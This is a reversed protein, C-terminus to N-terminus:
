PGNYVIMKVMSFLTLMGAGLVAVELAKKNNAVSLLGAFGREDKSSVPREPMLISNKYFMQKQQELLPENQIETALDSRISRLKSDVINGFNELLDGRKKPELWLQILLFLFLNLAMLSFTGYTSLRRIKDSWLQEEQYRERVTDMLHQHAQDVAKELQQNTSKAEAECAELRMEKRYLETFRMLDEDSWSQKRQLLSNLEKQCQSRNAIASDFSIRSNRLQDKLRQFEEDAAIVAMRLRGCSEYGTIQNIIRNIEQSYDDTQMRLTDHVKNLRQRSQQMWTRGTDKVSKALTRIQEIYSLPKRIRQFLSM